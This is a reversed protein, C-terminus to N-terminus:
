DWGFGNAVALVMGASTTSIAFLLSLLLRAAIRLVRKAGHVVPM